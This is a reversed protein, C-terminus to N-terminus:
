IFKAYLKTEKYIYNKDNDYEKAPVIDNEFDWKNTYEIDKYWGDFTKGEVIPDNPKYKIIENDYDDIWYIQNNVYYTVNANYAGNYKMTYDNLNISIPLYEYIYDSGLSAKGFTDPSFAFAKVGWEIQKTKIRIVSMFYIRNVVDSKIRGWHNSYGRDYTGYVKYGDIYEPVVIVEKERGIVSLEQIAAMKKKNETIIRYRFDGIEYIKVNRCSSLSITLPILIFIFSIILIIKKM